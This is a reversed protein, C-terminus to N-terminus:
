KGGDRFDGLRHSTSLTAANEFISEREYFIRRSSYAPLKPSLEVIELAAFVNFGTGMM